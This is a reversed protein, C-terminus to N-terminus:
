IQWHRGVRRVMGERALTTLQAVISERPAHVARIIARTTLPEETLAHIVAGRVQRTSGVFRSQKTYTASKTNLRVGQAKLHAGYDMLAWAWARPKKTNWLSTACALLETDTVRARQAFFHHLLVTRINTELMPVCANWAFTRVAGATYPGIGPLACLARTDNPVRGRYQTVLVIAADHLAKARRNYGLGQWLRLVDGRSAGALSRLTPFARVFARYKPVVRSVQTQQLMVESVLIHYPNHTLRWPLDHRGHTRFHGWVIRRFSRIHAPDVGEM